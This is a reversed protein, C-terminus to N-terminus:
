PRQYIHDMLIKLIVRLLSRVKVRYIPLSNRGNNVTYMLESLPDMKLPNLMMFRCFPLFYMRMVIVLCLPACSILRTRNEKKKKYSVTEDKLSDVYVHLSRKGSKAKEIVSLCEEKLKVCQESSFDYVEDKGFFWEKGKYGTIPSLVYPFGCSTNRPIAEFYPIGPVGACAEEFSIPSFDFASPDKFETLKNFYSNTCIQLLMPDIISLNSGYREVAAIIPDPRGGGACLHAPTKTPEVWSGHLETRVLSSKRARPVPRLIRKLAVFTGSFPLLSEPGDDYDELCDIDLPILPVRTESDLIECMEKIDEYSLISSIGFGSVNGHGAVHIGTIKGPGISKCHLIVPSGCDGARTGCVYRL